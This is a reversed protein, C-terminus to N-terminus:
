TGDDLVVCGGYGDEQLSLTTSSNVLGEQFGPMNISSLTEQKDQREDLEGAFAGSLGSLDMVVMIITLLIAKTMKKNEFRAKSLNDM